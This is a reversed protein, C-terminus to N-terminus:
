KKNSIVPQLQRGELAAEVADPIKSMDGIMSKPKKVPDDQGFPVFYVNKMNMLYGINKFNIGLADNTSVSIVLPRENRLHAKAAMLVPSDTIGACLKALTNGTCPAIVMVDFLAKPGVPEAQAITKMGAKGCIKEIENVFKGADAFRTNTIQTNFSFVPTIDAGAEAMKELENKVRGFTCFSGTIGFGIKCENFKM